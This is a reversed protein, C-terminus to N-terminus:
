FCVRGSLAHIIPFSRPRIFLLSNKKPFFTHTHLIFQHLIHRCENYSSVVSIENNKVNEDSKQVEFVIAHCPITCIDQKTFQGFQGTPEM